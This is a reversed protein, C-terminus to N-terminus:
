KGYSLHYGSMEYGPCKTGLCDARIWLTAFRIGRQLNSGENWFDQIRGQWTIEYLSQDARDLM